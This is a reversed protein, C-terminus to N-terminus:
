SRDLRKRPRRPWRHGAVVIDTAKNAVLENIGDCGFAVNAQLENLGKHQSSQESSAVVHDPKYQAAQEALLDVRSHGTVGFVRFGELDDVVALANQGISGTSGLIAVNTLNPM